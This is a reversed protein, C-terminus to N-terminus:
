QMMSRELNSFKGQNINGQIFRYLEMYKLPKQFVKFENESFGHDRLVEDIVHNGTIIAVKPLIDLYETKLKNLIGFGDLETRPALSIDVFISDYIALKTWNITQSTAVLDYHLNGECLTAITDIPSKISAFENEIILINIM